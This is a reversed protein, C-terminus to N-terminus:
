KFISNNYTIYSSLDNINLSLPANHISAFHYPPMTFQHLTILPCQSNICLLLPANHDLIYKSIGRTNHVTLQCKIYSRCNYEKPMTIWYANTNQSPCHSKTRKSEHAYHGIHMTGM